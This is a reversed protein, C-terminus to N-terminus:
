KKVKIGNDLISYHRLEKAITPILIQNEINKGLNNEKVYGGDFIYLFDIIGLEVKAKDTVENALVFGINCLSYFILLGSLPLIRKSLLKLFNTFSFKQNYM